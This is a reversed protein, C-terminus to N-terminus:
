HGLEDHLEIMVPAREQVPFLVVLKRSSRWLLHVQWWVYQKSRCRISSRKKPDMDDFPIFALIYVVHFLEKELDLSMPDEGDEIIWDLSVPDEGDEIVSM